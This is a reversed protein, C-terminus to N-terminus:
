KEKFLKEITQHVMDAPSMHTLSPRLYRGEGIQRHHRADTLTLSFAILHSSLDDTWQDQYTVTADTEPEMMTLPGSDAQYGLARLEGVIMEDFRHNDNLRREVFITHLAALDANPARRATVTGACGALLCALALLLSPLVPSVPLPLLGPSRVRSANVM